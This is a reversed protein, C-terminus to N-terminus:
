QDWKSSTQTCPSQAATSSSPIHYISPRESSVMLTAPLPEARSFDFRNQDAMGGDALRGGDAHGVLQLSILNNAEADQGGAMFWRVLQGAFQALGHGIFYALREPGFFDAEDAGDGLRAVGFHHAADDAAGVQALIRAVDDLRTL